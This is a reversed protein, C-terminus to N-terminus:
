FIGQSMKKKIWKKNNKMTQIQHLHHCKKIKNHNLKKNSMEMVRSSNKNKNSEKM